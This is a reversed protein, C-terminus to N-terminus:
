EIITSGRVFLYLEDLGSSNANTLPAFAKPNSNMLISEWFTIFTLVGM